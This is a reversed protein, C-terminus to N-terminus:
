EENFYVTTERKHILLNQIAKIKNPCDQHWVPHEGKYRVYKHKEVQSM